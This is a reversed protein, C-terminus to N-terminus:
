SKVSSSSRLRRRPSGSQPAVGSKRAFAELVALVSALAPTVPKDRRRILGLTRALKPEPMLVALEGSAAEQKVAMTSIISLGLGAGVLKKSAEANGLEMAINPACKARSFWADMVTRIAGGREFLVLPQGALEAPTITRQKRWKPEPPAIVVLADEYFPMVSLERAAVPLTVVALDLANDIVAQTIDRTNGTTVTMELTPHKLRLRRLLPPLLHISATAGTGLRVRGSVVGSRQSLAVRAAELEAFAREGHALLIEGAPTAFARKGVRELLAVGFADELQRIHLSVAPQSLRLAEGARSFSGRRAVERFTRLHALRIDM